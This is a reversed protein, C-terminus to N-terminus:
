FHFKFTPTRVQHVSLTLREAASLYQLCLLLEGRVLAQWRFM